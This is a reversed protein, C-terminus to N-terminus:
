QLQYEPLDMIYQYFPKLRSTVTTQYGTNTPNNIYNSWATTWYANTSQGSLLISKLYDKVTQDVELSLLLALTDDVLAVPDDPTPMSATLALTDIIIKQGARTYGTYLMLDAFATRNPLTNSNIWLEHYEPEQYFAPWGAVNPPNLIDQACLASWGELYGWMYYQTALDTNDPFTVGMQRMMGVFYDVPPKIFCGQNLVDFFHESKFLLALAPKIDYNNSRLMAAMPTIINTEITSDIDYYVFFRYLRRCLYMACENTALIMTILDDLEDAGSNGTNNIVTNNYFASFQKPNTDHKTADFYSTMSSSTIRYGTLVRAAAEVDSQTYLSNPGKGVTFLEQLERGYNEDPANKTNVYGNLYVLMAPDKSIATVLTRFNGLANTRITEIYKYGARADGYSNLETAFHNHWFLTMKQELSITQGLMNCIWWEQLSKKRGANMTTTYTDNIWTTGFPVNPDPSSQSSYNNLPPSPTGATNNLLANVAQDTTLALLQNIDTRTPGFM